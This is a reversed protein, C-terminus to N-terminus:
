KTQLFTSAGQIDTSKTLSSLRAHTSRGHDGQFSNLNVLLDTARSVQTRMWLDPIGSLICFGSKNLSHAGSMNGRACITHIIASLWASCIKETIDAHLLGTDMRTFLYEVVSARLQAPDIKNALSKWRWDMVMKNLVQIQKDWNLDMCLWIGLYRFTESSPKPVIKEKGDVSWLFRPDDEGSQDSIIY